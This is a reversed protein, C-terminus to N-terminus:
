REIKKGGAIASSIVFRANTLGNPDMPPLHIIWDKTWQPRSAVLLDVNTALLSGMWLGM